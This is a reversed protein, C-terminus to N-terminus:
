TAGSNPDIQNFILLVYSPWCMESPRTMNKLLNLMKMWVRHVGCVSKQNLSGIWPTFVFCQKQQGRHLSCVPWNTAQTKSHLGSVTMFQGLKKNALQGTTEVLWLFRCNQCVHIAGLLFLAFLIDGVVVWFHIHVVFAPINVVFFFLRASKGLTFLSKFLFIKGVFFFDHHGTGGVAM